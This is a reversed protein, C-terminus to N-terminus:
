WEEDKTQTEVVMSAGKKWPVFNSECGVKPWRSIDTGWKATLKEVWGQLMPDDPRKEAENALPEWRALCKYKWTGPFQYWMKPIRLWTAHLGTKYDWGTKARRVNFYRLRPRLIHMFDM